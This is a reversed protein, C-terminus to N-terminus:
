HARGIEFEGGLFQDIGGAVSTRGTVLWGAMDCAGFTVVWVIQVVPGARAMCYGLLHYRTAVLGVLLHTVVVIPISMWLSAATIEILGVSQLRSGDLLHLLDDVVELLVLSPKTC